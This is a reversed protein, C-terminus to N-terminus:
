GERKGEKNGDNKGSKLESKVSPSNEAFRTTCELAGKSTFVGPEDEGVAYDPYKRFRIDDHDDHTLTISDRFFDDGSKNKLFDADKGSVKVIVSDPDAEWRDRTNLMTRITKFEAELRFDKLGTVYFVIRGDMKTKEENNETVTYRSIAEITTLFAKDIKRCQIVTGPTQMSYFEELEKKSAANSFPMLLIFFTVMVFRFIKNM